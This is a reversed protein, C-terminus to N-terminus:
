CEGVVPAVAKKAQGGNKYEGSGGLGQVLQGVNVFDGFGETNVLKHVQGFCAADAPAASATGAFGIVALAAVSTTALIRKM